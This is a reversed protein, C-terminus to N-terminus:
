CSRSGTRAERLAQRGTASQYFREGAVLWSGASGVMALSNGGGDTPTRQGDWWWDDREEEKGSICELKYESEVQVEVGM